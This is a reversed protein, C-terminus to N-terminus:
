DVVFVRRMKTPVRIGPTTFTRIEGMSEGVASPLESRHGIIDRISASKFLEPVLLDPGVLPLDRKLAEKAAQRIAFEVHYDWGTDEHGLAELTEQFSNITLAQEIAPRHQKYPHTVFVLSGDAFASALM